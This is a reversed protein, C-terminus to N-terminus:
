VGKFGDERLGGVKEEGWGGENFRNGSLEGGAFLGLGEDEDKACDKHGVRGSDEKRGEKREYYERGGWSLGSM